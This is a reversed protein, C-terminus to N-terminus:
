KTLMQDVAKISAKAYPRVREPIQEPLIEPGLIGVGIPKMLDLQLAIISSIVSNAMVLGHKTEGREIIGLAVAGDIDSKELLRKLALPKEMSGPVWVTEVINIDNNKAFKEIEDLMENAEKKHFSGLVVAINKKM